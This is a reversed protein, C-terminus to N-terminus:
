LRQIRWMKGQSRIGLIEPGSKEILLLFGFGQEFLMYEPGFNAGAVVGPGGALGAAISGIISGYLNGTIIVDFQSPDKMLQMSANDVIMEEYELTAYKESVGRCTELFLGDAIKRSGKLFILRVYHQGQPYM